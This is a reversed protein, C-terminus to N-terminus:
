FRILRLSVPLEGQGGLVRLLYTGVPLTSVDVALYTEGVPLRGDFLTAVPRGTVDFLQVTVEGAEFLSVRLSTQGATPNPRLALEVPTVVGDFAPEARPRNARRPTGYADAVWHQGRANDTGPDRLAITRDAGAFDAPWPATATYVVEDQLQENRNFLRVADGERSLGFDMGGVVGVETPYLMTFRIADQALILYGDPPLITGPPLRFAHTDDSDRLTWDSLDLPDSGPNYLEIWDGTDADPDSTYHIENIVAAAPTDAVARFVPVIRLARNPIVTLIPDNSFVDGTWRDFAHGPRAVATLQVPVEAFYDGSWDAETITLTNLHVYGAGPAENAITLPYYASLGFQQLIHQKMAAPRRAAFDKMRAIRAPWAAFDGDWRAFHRPLEPAIAAALTDLHLAIRDPLLRGNMEDAFRNVLRNRFGENALAARLLTTTYAQDRWGAAASEIARNLSNNAYDESGSLGFGLDTDFLIWRWRGGDPRWFKNNNGPWDTNNLYVQVVNYLIFNALDVETAFHYYASDDALSHQQVYNILDHYGSREGHIVDGGLELLNIRDPDHGSRSALYHENIKERLNYLGWYSGNLYTVTPRYGLTELDADLYLRAVAGDRLMTNLWDNGSNRLVVSQFEEYPLDPFLPYDIRPSGYASRAFLSLSRQSLARSFGGFVKVGASFDTGGVGGPERFSVEVPREWEQWINAGFFPYDGHRGPGLVYIGREYGFLHDPDSTLNLTPLRTSEGVLYTQSYTRSPLRDPAFVAARVVLTRDITIPGAYRPSTDTPTTADLTYRIESNPGDGSLTLSFAATPGGPRSFTVRDTVLGAVGGTATNPAGPTPRAFFVTSDSRGTPRGVSTGPPLPPCSLRDSPLGAADYLSIVEGRASLRFNTHLSRQHYDLVAAPRDGAASPTPLYVTLLPLATLDPSAGNQNHVQVALVNEGERLLEAYDAISFQPPRRGQPLKADTNRAALARYDPRDGWIGGRAVEVGNLYAVFADDYDVDLLLGSVAAVDDIRFTHRLFVARTGTPLQTNEGGSGYGLPTSGSHWGSDDFDPGIWAYRDLTSDPLIYRVEQGLRLLAHPYTLTRRDKGSAWVRLYGGAPLTTGPAFTWQRPRAPDDSLSWGSLDVTRGTPNHLELWDALSGDEDYDTTNASTAESLYVSQGRVCATALLLLAPLLVATFRHHPMSRHSYGSLLWSVVRSWAICTAGAVGGAYVKGKAM